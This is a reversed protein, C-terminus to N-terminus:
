LGRLYSICRLTRNYEFYRTARELRIDREFVFAIFDNNKFPSIQKKNEIEVWSIRVTIISYTHFSSALVLDHKRTISFFKTAPITNVQIRPM